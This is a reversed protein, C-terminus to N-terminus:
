RRGTGKTLSLEYLMHELKKVNTRLAQAKREVAKLGTDGLSLIASQVLLNAQLAKAAATTDRATAKAVAWRGVEGTLDGLGGLYEGATVSLMLLSGLQERSLGM